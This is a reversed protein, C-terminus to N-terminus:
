KVEGIETWEDAQFTALPLPEELNRGPSYDFAAQVQSGITSFILGVPIDVPCASSCIGCNVCSTAMHNLRTLHFLLTDGLLRTAGKRFAANLYHEPPHDFAATRFLCTKCYCLPCATMCNHCRLCAAFLEAMTGNSSLKANFAAIETLRAKQRAECIQKVINQRTETQHDHAPFLGIKEAIEEQTKVYIGTESVTGYLQIHIDGKEPIPQSCMQCALRLKSDVPQAGRGAKQIFDELSFDGSQHLALYEPLEYTGLCDVGILLVDELTAQQLKVLEVLARIECARLVVGIKTPVKKQTIASVARAGNVPMVPAFPNAQELHAPDTVLAPLIPGYGSELSVYLADILKNLLLTQLFNQVAALVSGNKSPLLSIM